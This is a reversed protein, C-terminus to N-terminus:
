SKLVRMINIKMFAVSYIIKFNTTSNFVELLIRVYKKKMTEYILLTKEAFNNDGNIMENIPILKDRDSVLRIAMRQLGKEM